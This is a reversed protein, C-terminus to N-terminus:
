RGWGPRRGPGPATVVRSIVGSSAPRGRQGSASILPPSAAWLAAASRRSNSPSCPAKGRCRAARIGAGGKHHRARAFSTFSPTPSAACASSLPAALAFSSASSRVPRSCALCSCERCSGRSCARPLPPRWSWPRGRRAPLARWPHRVRRAAKEGRQFVLLVAAFEAQDGLDLLGAGGLAQDAGIEIGRRQGHGILFAARGTKRHQGVVGDKWPAGSYRAWARSTVRRGTSRLSKM